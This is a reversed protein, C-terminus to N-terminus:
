EVLQSYFSSVHGGARTSEKIIKGVYEYINLAEEILAVASTDIDDEKLYTQSQQNSNKPSAATNSSLIASASAQGVVRYINILSKRFLQKNRHKRIVTSIM